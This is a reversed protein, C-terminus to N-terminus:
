ANMKDLTQLLAEINPVFEIFAEIGEYLFGDQQMKYFHAELHNYFGDINAVIIKKNHIKLNNWTLMEFLEDLTGNGGPFIIAIDCKSFLLKKREHMDPVVILETINHNAQEWKVLLEPIIGIVTAGTQMGVTAFTGMLGVKGGGYIITKQHQGLWSALATAANEYAPNTGMKSGCFIAVAQM